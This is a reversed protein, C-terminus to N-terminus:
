RTALRSFGAHLRHVQLPADGLMRAKRRMEALLEGSPEGYIDISSLTLLESFRPFASAAVRMHFEMSAADPHVQLVSVRSASEDLYVHYAIAEPENEDVFAALDEMAAKLDGARGRHIRSTDLSILPHPM